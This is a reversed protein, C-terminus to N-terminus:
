AATKDRTQVPEHPAIARPQAPTLINTASGAAGLSRESRRWRARDIKRCLWLSGTVAFVWL